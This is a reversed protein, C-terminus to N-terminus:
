HLQMSYGLFNYSSIIHHIVQAVMPKIHDMDVCLSWLTAAAHATAARADVSDEHSELLKSLCPIAGGKAIADKLPPDASLNCICATALRQAHLTNTITSQIKIQCAFM